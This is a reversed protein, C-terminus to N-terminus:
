SSGCKKEEAEMAAVMLALKSPRARLAPLPKIPRASMQKAILWLHPPLPGAYKLTYNPYHVGGPCHNERPGEGQGHAHVGGCQACMVLWSKSFDRKPIPRDAPVSYASIVPYRDIEPTKNAAGKRTKRM